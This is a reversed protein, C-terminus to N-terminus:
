KKEKIKNGLYEKVPNKEVLVKKIVCQNLQDVLLIAKVSIKQVLDVVLNVQKATLGVRVVIELFGVM